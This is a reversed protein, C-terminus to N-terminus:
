QYINKGRRNRLQVGRLSYGSIHKGRGVKDEELLPRTGGRTTVLGYNRQLAKRFGGRSPWEKKWSKTYGERSEGHLDKKLSEAIGGGGERNSTRPYIKSIQRSKSPMTGRGGGDDGTRPSPPSNGTGRSKRSRKGGCRLKKPQAPLTKRRRQTLGEENQRRKKV